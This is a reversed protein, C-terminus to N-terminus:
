VGNVCSQLKAVIQLDIPRLEVRPHVEVETTTANRMAVNPICVTSALPLNTMPDTTHTQLWKEIATREYTHGSELTVPDDMPEHTIPCEFRMPVTREYMVKDRRCVEMADQFLQVLYAESAEQIVLLADSAFRCDLKFDQAIECVLRRFPLQHILLETSKQYKRIEKLARTGPRYRRPKKVGGTAPVSQKTRAM